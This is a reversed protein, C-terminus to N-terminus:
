LTKIENIKSASIDLTLNVPLVPFTGPALANIATEILTLHNDVSAKYSQLGSNLPSYRVANDSNGGIEYTGDSKIWTYFKETGTTDTAYTRLEGVGAQQNKNIYGIIYTDGKSTTQTYVGIIDKIPNSDIGYPSVEVSTQVDKLGMRFFKVIRRGNKISTSIIKVLNM